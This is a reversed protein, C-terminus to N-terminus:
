AAVGAKRMVGLTSELGLRAGEEATAEAPIRGLPEPSVSDEYGTQKLAKFFGAMDIVGEGPLLRRNDRVEEPPVKASDSLHIAVIRAKGAHVIDEVTAGAHHWHWVDLLLGINGGCERAFELMDNMRWLFEHPQSTRFHLPGLFELGLRINHKALVEGVVTFRTKLLKRFEERPTESAAPVVTVMRACGIASAFQAAEDLRAFGDRFAQEDRTVTVPLGSYAPRIKLEAFLTRTADLGQKMAAPLNVDVGGYGVRAALRAFDPWAVKAGTLSGNLSVYMGTAAGKAPRLAAAALAAALFSRRSAGRGRSEADGSFRESVGAVARRRM